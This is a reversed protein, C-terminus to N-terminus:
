GRSAVGPPVERLNPIPGFSEHSEAYVFRTDRVPQVPVTQRLKLTKGWFCSISFYRPVNVGGTPPPVSRRQTSLFARRLFPGTRHVPISDDVRSAQSTM